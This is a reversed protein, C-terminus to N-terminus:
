SGWGNVNVEFTGITGSFDTAAATIVIEGLAGAPGAATVFGTSSVTIKGTSDSSSWVVTQATADTPSIVASLQLTQPVTYPVAPTWVGSSVSGSSPTGAQISIATVPVIALASKCGALTFVAVWVIGAYSMFRM